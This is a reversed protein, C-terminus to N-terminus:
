VYKDVANNKKTIIEKQKSIVYMKNRQLDM